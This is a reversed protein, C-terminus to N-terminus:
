PFVLLGRGFARLFNGQADFEMIPDLLSGECSNAGCRDAVWIRGHADVTVASTSGMSRGVPLRLFHDARRYSDSKSDTPSSPQGCAIQAGFVALIAAAIWVRSDASLCSLPSSQM